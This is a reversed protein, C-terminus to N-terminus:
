KSLESWRKFVEQLSMVQLGKKLAGGETADIVILKGKEEAVRREIWERYMVFLRSVPVTGGGIAPVAIKDNEDSVHYDATHSAHSQNGTYALDLGIFAIERCGLRICMDRAITTVSGGTKYLQYGKDKVYEEAKDYGYQCILFKEGEYKQAIAKCATSACIIPVKCDEIGQIQQYLRTQADLFIVYDPLINMAVLKTFVTGVAVVVTNDPRHRLLEINKDLSPGAAIIIANKGEFKERVEDIYRNCNKVNDRYNNQFQIKMNRKGSDSIFFKELQIKIEPKTVHRLSPNHIVLHSDGDLLNVLKKYDADYILHVRPNEYIWSLDMWYAATAIVNIDPEIIDIEIGDDLELMAKIHYGLGLGFVIYHDCDISYYQQAFARGELVPNNNSHFYYTGTTDTVQLTLMGSSTPEVMYEQSIVLTELIKTLSAGKKGLGEINNEVQMEDVEFSANSIMLEQVQQLWPVIQLELLDAILVYDENEQANMVGSLLVTFSEMDLEYVQLEPEKMFSQVVELLGQTLQNMTGLAAHLNQKRFSQITENALILNNSINEIIIKVM